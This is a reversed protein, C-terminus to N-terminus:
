VAQRFSQLSEQKLGAVRWHFKGLEYALRWDAGQALDSARQLYGYATDADSDKV